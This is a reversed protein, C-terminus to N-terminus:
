SHWLIIYIQKPTGDNQHRSNDSRDNNCHYYPWNHINKIILYGNSVNMIKWLSTRSHVTQM